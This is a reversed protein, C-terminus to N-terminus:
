AMTRGHALPATLPPLAALVGDFHEPMLHTYLQAMAPTKHGLLMQRRGLSIGAAVLWSAYTHRCDHPTLGKLSAAEVTPPWVRRRRSQYEVVGGRPATLLLTDRDRGEMLRSLRPLRDPPVPVQRGAQASKGGEHVRGM